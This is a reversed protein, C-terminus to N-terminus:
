IEAKLSSWILRPKCIASPQGSIATRNVGRLERTAGVNIKIDAGSFLGRHLASM